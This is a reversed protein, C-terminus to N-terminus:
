FKRIARVYMLTPKTSSSSSSGNSFNISWATTTGVQSSSWYSVNNFGGILTRNTYLKSLEDRSPLYWDSYGGSVLNNCLRAAINTTNCGNVIATTNAVGTGLTTSTGAISTGSCGWQLGTSQNSTTAILGHTQGAIYGNDGPVFIYAIIGGQYTQGVALNPLTTFTLTNGYATGVSNTAYARVYYNTNPVLGTMSSSFSGIGTGNNSISNLITPTSNTSSWCVGRATITAGGNNAISGGSLASNQTISSISNTIIGTPLTPSLTTFSRITGYATGVSNTAYARVYYTTGPLLGTMSSSFAGIGTGDLTKDDSITPASNTNSWCVGRLTITAAGDSAINGGCIATTQTISSLTTTTIGTAITAALTTFSVNEGYATGYSNTAYARAYYTTSPSLNDLACTYFGLVYNDQAPFIKKFGSITPNSNTGYCIGRETIISGNDTLINGSVNVTTQTVDSFDLTEIANQIKGYDFENTCSIIVLLTMLLFRVKYLLLNKM